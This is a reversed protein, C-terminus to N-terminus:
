WARDDNSLQEWMVTTHVTQLKTELWQERFQPPYNMFPLLTSQIFQRIYLTLIQRGRRFGSKACLVFTDIGFNTPAPLFRKWKPLSGVTQLTPQLLFSYKSSYYADRSVDMKHKVLLIELRVSDVREVEPDTNFIDLKRSFSFFSPYLNRPPM